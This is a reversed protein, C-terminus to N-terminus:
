HLGHGIQDRQRTGLSSTPSCGHGQKASIAVAAGDHQQALWGLEPTALEEGDGDGPMGFPSAV